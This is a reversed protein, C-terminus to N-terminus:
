GYQRGLTIWIGLLISLVGAIIFLLFLQNFFLNTQRKSYFIGGVILWLIGLYLLPDFIDFIEPPLRPLALRFVAGLFTLTLGGIINGILIVPKM